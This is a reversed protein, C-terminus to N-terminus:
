FITKYATTPNLIHNIRNFVKKSDKFNEEVFRLLEEKTAKKEIDVILYPIGKALILSDDPTSARKVVRKNLKFEVTGYRTTKASEPSLQYKQNM